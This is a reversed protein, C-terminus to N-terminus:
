DRFREKLRREEQGSLKVKRKKEEGDSTVTRVSYTGAPLPGIHHESVSFNSFFDEMATEWSSLGNVQRDNEDRVEVRSPVPNKDGDISSVILITGAELTLAIEDQGGATVRARVSDSAGTRTRCFVTYDGPAISTYRFSGNAETVTGTRRDLVRGDADRVFIAAKPVPTGATNVVKGRIEGPKELRFDIGDLTGGEALELGGRIARGYGAQSEAGFRLSTGATIAFNGARLNEISYSGDEDSRINGNGGFGLSASVPGEVAISLSVGELPKGDPGFIRGRIVGSPLEFALTVSEAEPVVETFEVERMAGEVPRVTILYPGPRKLETSFTGSEDTSIFSTDGLANESDAVFSLMARVPEGNATVKGNAQVPNAPAAGLTAHVTEGEIVTVKEMRLNSLFDAEDDGSGRDTPMSILQWDGAALGDFAFHGSEDTSTMRSMGTFGGQMANVMRGPQLTGDQGFVEGEINGGRLLLFAIDDVTEGAVLEFTQPASPAYGGAKASFTYAGAALGALEFGGLADTVGRLADGGGFRARMDEDDPSVIANPVPRGDPSAVRGRLRAEPALVIAIPEAEMAGPMSFEVPESRAYGEAKAELKWWAPELGWLAFSGNAASFAETRSSGTAQALWAEEDRLTTTLEFADLPTGDLAHVTGRVVSEPELVLVLPDTAGATVDDITTSGHDENEDEGRTARAVVVYTEASLGEVAFSGEADATAEQGRRDRTFARFGGAGPRDPTDELRARIRAGAAPAGDPWRVIGAIVKGRPLVLELEDRVDGDALQLTQAESQRGDESSARLEVEAGIPAGTLLFRGDDDTTTEKELSRSRGWPMGGGGEVEASVEVKANAVPEDQEDVVRGTLRAGASLTLEVDTTRGSRVTLEDSVLPAFQETELSVRHRRGPPLGGLELTTRGALAEKRPRFSFETMVDFQMSEFGRQFAIQDEPLLLTDDPTRLTVAISGGLAAEIVVEDPLDELLLRLPTDVYLYRGDLELLVFDTVGPEPVAAEFRGNASVPAKDYPPTIAPSDEGLFFATTSTQGTPVRVVVSLTEDPTSGSPFLVRGSIRPGRPEDKEEGRVARREDLGDTARKAAAAAANGISLKADEPAKTLSAATRGPAAVDGRSLEADNRDEGALIWAVVSMLGLGAVLLPGLIKKNSPQM